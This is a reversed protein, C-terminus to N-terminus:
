PPTRGRRTKGGAVAEGLAADIEANQADLTAFLLAVRDHLDERYLHMAEARYAGGDPVQYGWNAMAWAMLQLDSLRPSRVVSSGPRGPDRGVPFPGQGHNSDPFHQPSSDSPKM